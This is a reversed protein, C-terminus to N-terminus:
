EGRADLEILARAADAAAHALDPASASCAECDEILNLLVHKVQARERDTLAADEVEGDRALRVRGPRIGYDLMDCTDMVEFRRGYFKFEPNEENASVLDSVFDRLEDLGDFFRGDWNEGDVTWIFDYDPPNLNNM